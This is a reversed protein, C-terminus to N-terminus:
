ETFQMDVFVLMDAAHRPFKAFQKKLSTEIIRIVPPIRSMVENLRITTGGASLTIEDIGSITAKGAPNLIPHTADFITGAVITCCRVIKASTDIVALWSLTGWVPAGLTVLDDIARDLHQVCNRLSEIEATRRYFLQLSPSKQKMGPMHQLLSRLRHVSDVISWADQVADLIKTRRNQTEQPRTALLLLTNRLRTIASDAMEIALRAGDLFLVQKRNLGHPLRRLVSDSAIM